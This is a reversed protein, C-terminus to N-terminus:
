MRDSFKKKGKGTETEKEATEKNLVNKYTVTLFFDRSKETLASVNM